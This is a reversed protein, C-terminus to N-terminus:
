TAVPSFPEFIESCAISANESSTDSRLDISLEVPQLQDNLLDFGDLILASCKDRLLSDVSRGCHKEVELTDTGLEGGDEVQFSQEAM